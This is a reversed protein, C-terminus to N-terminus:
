KLSVLSVPQAVNNALPSSHLAIVEGDHSVVCRATALETGSRALRASLTVTYQRVHAYVSSSAHGKKHVRVTRGKPLHSDVFAQICADTAKDKSGATAAFPVATLLVLSSIAAMKRFNM